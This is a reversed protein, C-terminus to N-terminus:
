AATTTAIASRRRRLAGGLGFVGVGLLAWSAPEPAGTVVAPTYDYTLTADGSIGPSFNELHPDGHEKFSGTRSFDFTLNGPGDFALLGSSTAGTKSGSGIVDISVTTKGPVTFDQTGSALSVDLDFGHGALAASAKEHLKAVKSNRSDNLLEGPASLDADFSLTVGTLTGLSTDFKAFSISTDTGLSGSAINDTQIVTAAFAPAAVLAGTVALAMFLAKM